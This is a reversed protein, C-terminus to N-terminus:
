PGFFNFYNRFKVGYPALYKELAQRVILGRAILKDQWTGALVKNLDTYIVTPMTFYRGAVKVSLSDDTNSVSAVSYLSRFQYGTGLACVLYPGGPAEQRINLLDSFDQRGTLRNLQNGAAYVGIVIILVLAIFGRCLVFFDATTKREIM